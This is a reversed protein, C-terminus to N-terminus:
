AAEDESLEDGTGLREEHLWLDVETEEAVLGLADAIMKVATFHAGPLKIRGSINLRFWRADSM